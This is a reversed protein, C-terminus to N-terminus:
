RLLVRSAHDDGGGTVSGTFLWIAIVLVILWILTLTALRHVPRFEDAKFTRIVALVIAVGDVGLLASVVM